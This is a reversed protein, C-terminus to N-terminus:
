FGQLMRGWPSGAQLMDVLNQMDNRIKQIKNGKNTVDEVAAKRFAEGRVSFYIPNVVRVAIGIRLYSAPLGPCKKKKLKEADSVRKSLQGIVQWSFAM